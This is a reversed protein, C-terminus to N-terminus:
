AGHLSLQNITDCDKKIQTSLEDMSDFRKEERVFATLECTAKKGYLDGGGFDLLFTECLPAEHAGVTPHVGINTAGQYRRGDITLMSAYVGYRPATLGDGIPINVTPFGMVSGIHNGSDIAGEIAYAYGLLNNAKEIRGDAICRRILSSSIQEGDCYVPQTVEVAVGHEKGLEALLATDGTGGQGFHYNFGCTIRKAHLRDRLIDTVFAQPSLDKVANFDAFIVEDVGIEALLEAKRENSSLLTPTPRGLAKAPSERFTLVVCPRDGKAAVCSGIVARHGSHVGDFFGLAVCAGKNNPKYEKLDHYAKM